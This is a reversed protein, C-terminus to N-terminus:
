PVTVEPDIQALGTLWTFVGGLADVVEMDYPYSVTGVCGTPLTITASSAAPITLIATGLLPSGSTAWMAGCDLILAGATTRIQMRYTAGTLDIPTGDVDFTATMAFSDGKRFRFNLVGALQSISAM